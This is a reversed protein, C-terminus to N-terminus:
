LGARRLDETVASAVDAVVASARAAMAMFPVPHPNTPGGFAVAAAYPATADIRVPPRSGTIRISRRLRGTRVPALARARMAVGRAAGAWVDDLRVSALRRSTRDDVRITLDM